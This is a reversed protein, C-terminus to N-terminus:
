PTSSSSRTVWESSLGGASPVCNTGSTVIRRSRYLDERHMTAPVHHGAISRWTTLGTTFTKYGGSFGGYPNGQVHGLVITLDAESCTRNFAVVDDLSSRGMDVIGDPDEADHNTIRVRHVALVEEPLYRAM